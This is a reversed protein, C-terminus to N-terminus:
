KIFLTHTMNILRCVTAIFMYRHVHMIMCLCVSVCVFVRIDRLRHFPDFHELLFLFEEHLTVYNFVSMANKFVCERVYALLDHQSLSSPSNRLSAMKTPFTTHFPIYFHVNLRHLPVAPFSASECLSAWLAPFSASCLRSM